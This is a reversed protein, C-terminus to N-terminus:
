ILRTTGMAMLSGADVFERFTYVAPLRNKGTLAVLRRGESVFM